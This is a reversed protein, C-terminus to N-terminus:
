EGAANKMRRMKEPDKGPKQIGDVEDYEIGSSVDVVDPHVQKIAREVNDPTLGGALVFLRGDRDIDTLSNWDFTKGSGPEGADFVYGTVNSLDQYHPYTDMDKVNFAKWVPLHSNEILEDEIQGHIQIVDFGLESIEAIQEAGPSVVVAAKKVDDRLDALLNRATEASVNRKSKPFYMVMGIYDPRVENVAAVDAPTTIGCMKIKMTRAGMGRIQLKEVWIITVKQLKELRKATIKAVKGVKKRCKKCSQSSKTDFYSM